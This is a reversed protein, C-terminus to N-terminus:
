SNVLGKQFILIPGNKGLLFAKGVSFGDNEYPYQGGAALKQPHNAKLSWQRSRLHAHVMPLHWYFGCTTRRPGWLPGLHALLALLPWFYGLFSFTAHM